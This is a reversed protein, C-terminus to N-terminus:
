IGLSCKFVKFDEMNRGGSSGKVENEEPNDATENDSDNDSEYFIDIVEDEDENNTEEEEDDTSYDVCSRETALQIQSKDPYANPLQVHYKIFNVKEKKKLKVHDKLGHHLLYKNLSPVRLKELQNTESLKKWGFDDFTKNQERESAQRREEKRKIRNIEKIRLQEVCKIVLHQEAIFKDFFKSLNEQDDIKLLGNQVADKINIRRQFDDVKRQRNETERPTVSVHLYKYKPHKSYDPFPWPIKQCPPGVWPHKLCYDCLSGTTENCAFKIYEMYKQGREFHTLLFSEIKQYYACGPVSERKSEPGSLFQSLYKHDNFFMHDSKESTYCKLYGGPGRAGDIRMSLEECVKFANYEMRQLEHKELENMSTKQIDNESLGELPKKYEWLIAGGDCIADGVYSQCREVQNQSSENNSLHHCILYDANTIRVRQAIRFQVDRNTVGLGPGGDTLEVVRAKLLPTLKETTELIDSANRVFAKFYDWVTTGDKNETLLDVITSISITLKGLETYIMVLQEVEADPLNERKVEFYDNLENIIRKLSNLRHLEYEKFNCNQLSKIKMVDSQETQDIYQYLSDKIAVM